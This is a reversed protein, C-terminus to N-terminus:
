EMHLEFDNCLAISLLHVLQTRRLSLTINSVGVMCAICIDLGTITTDKYLFIRLTM